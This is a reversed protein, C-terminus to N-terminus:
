WDNKFTGEAIMAELSDALANVTQDIDEETHASTLIFGRGGMTAIGRHLLHLCLRQRIPLLAPNRLNAYNATPLMTDDAPEFDIPGIYFHVISRSYLRGNIGRQKLFENCKKRFLSGAEAAKRQPEGTKYLKCAAVGAASTLPNGNWTGSHGIRKTGKKPSFGEMIDARGVLAGAGLGGGICKGLTTLDPKVGIVAQWGQQEGSLYDRFGTVVEDLCWITGYKRALDPIARTFDVDLPMAGGLSAGGGETMLVAYEKTSLEKELIDLKNAPINVTNIVNDEPITGESGPTTLQDNWGHFHYEFKLVKKRGTFSRCLRLAMMNAENGCPFFEVMEASPVMSKILEAWEIELQHNEGYHVGKAMQEQVARVVDPHCHGLILGGHGMVYDIYENGDVDWKRSGKAHTIYPRFPDLIRVGHTAGDAAFVKIAQQHLQESKPHARIYEEILNGKIM